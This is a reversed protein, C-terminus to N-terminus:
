SCSEIGVSVDGDQTLGYKSMKTTVSGGKFSAARKDCTFYVGDKVNVFLADNSSKLKVTLTKGIVLPTTKAVDGQTQDIIKKLGEYTMPRPDAAHVGALTFLGLSLTAIPASPCRLKTFQM